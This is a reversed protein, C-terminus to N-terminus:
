IGIKLISNSLDKSKMLLLFLIFLIYQFLLLMECFVVGFVEDYRLRADATNYNVEIQGKSRPHNSFIFSFSAYFLYKYHLVM